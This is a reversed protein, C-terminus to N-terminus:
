MLNIRCNIRRNQKNVDGKKWVREKKILDEEKKKWEKEQKELESMKLKLNELESTM